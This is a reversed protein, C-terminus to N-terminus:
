EGQYARDILQETTPHTVGEDRLSALAERYRGNDFAPHTSVKRRAYEDRTRRMERKM